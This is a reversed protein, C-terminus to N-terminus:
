DAARDGRGGGAFSLPTSMCSASSRFLVKYLQTLPASLVWAVQVRPVLGVVCTVGGSGDDVDMDVFLGWDTM